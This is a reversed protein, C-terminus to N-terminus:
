IDLIYNKYHNKEFDDLEQQTMGRGKFRYNLYKFFLFISSHYKTYQFHSTM